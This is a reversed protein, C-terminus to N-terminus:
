GIYCDNYYGYDPPLYVCVVRYLRDGYSSTTKSPTDFTISAFQDQLNNPILPSCDYQDIIRRTIALLRKDLKVLKVIVERNTQTM